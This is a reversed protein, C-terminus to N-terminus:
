KKNEKFAIAILTGIIIILADGIFLFKYTEPRKKIALEQSDLCNEYDEVEKRSKARREKDSISKIEYGQELIETNIEIGAEEIIGCFLRGKNKCTLLKRKKEAIENELEEIREPTLPVKVEKTWEVYERPECENHILYNLENIRILMFASFIAIMVAMIILVVKPKIRKIKEKM